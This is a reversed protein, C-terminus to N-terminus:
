INSENVFEDVCFLILPLAAISVFSINYLLSLISYRTLQRNPTEPIIKPIIKDQNDTFNLKVPNNIPQMM